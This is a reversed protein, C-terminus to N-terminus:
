KIPNFTSIEVDGEEEDNIISFKTETMSNTSEPLNRTKDSGITEDNEVSKKLLIAGCISIILSLVCLSAAISFLIQAGFLHYIFGAGLAGLGSGAGWHVSELLSQMTSEAGKPAIEGAYSCSAQWTLAFTFGNLSELFVVAWVFKRTLFLYGAFRIVFATQTVVLCWWVGLKSYVRGAVRFVIVESACTIFRGVGCLISSGGLEKIRIFLFADIIGDSVGSILTILTFFLIAVWIKKFRKLILLGVDETPTQTPTPALAPALTPTPIPLSTPDTDSDHRSATDVVGYGDSGGEAMKGEAGLGRRGIRLCLMASICCFVANLLFIPTFENSSFVNQSLLLGGTLSFIGFSAAGFLRYNGFNNSGVQSIVLSDFLSTLPSRVVSGALIFVAMAWISSVFLMSTTTIVGAVISFIMTQSHSKTKDARASIIPGFIVCCINPLFSFVGIIAKTFGKSQFFLPMYPSLVGFASYLFFYILKYITNVEM